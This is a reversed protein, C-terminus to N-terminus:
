TIESDEETYCLCIIEHNVLDGIKQRRHPICPGSSTEIETAYRPTYPTHPGVPRGIQPRVFQSVALVIIKNSEQTKSTSKQYHNNEWIASNQLQGRKTTASGGGGGAAVTRLILKVTQLCDWAHSM